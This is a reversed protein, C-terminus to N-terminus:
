TDGKLDLTLGRITLFLNQNELEEKLISIIASNFQLWLM